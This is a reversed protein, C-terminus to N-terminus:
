NTWTKNCAKCKFRPKGKYNGNKKFDESGCHPCKSSKKPSQPKQTQTQPEACDLSYLAELWQTQSQPEQTQTQSQTQNHTQTQPQTQPQKLSGNQSNQSYSKPKPLEAIFATKGVPKVLTLFEQGAKVRAQYQERLDKQQQSTYVVEKIGALINEGLFFNCSHKFDNRRMKLDSCLPTQGLYLVKINLARGVKLGVKLLSVADKGFESVVWDIEDIIFLIPSFGRIKVGSKKDSKAMELRSEVEKKLRELGELAQEVGKYDPEFEWESLPYKPDILVTSVSEGLSQKALTILNDCFTSKGSGTEGNLRFHNSKVVANVLWDKPPNIIETEESKPEPSHSPSPSLFPLSLKKEREILRYDGEVRKEYESQSHAVLGALSCASGSILLVSKLAQSESLSLGGLCGLSGLFAIASIGLSKIRAESIMAGGFAIRSSTLLSAAGM